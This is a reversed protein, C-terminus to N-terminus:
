LHSGRMSQICVIKAKFFHLKVTNNKHPEPDRVMDYMCSLYFEENMANGGKGYSFGKSM